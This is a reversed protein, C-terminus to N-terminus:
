IYVCWCIYWPLRLWLISRQWLLLLVRPLTFTTVHHPLPVRLLWVYHVCDFPAGNDRFGLMSYHDCNFPAGPATIGYATWPLCPYASAGMWLNIHRLEYSHWRLYIYAPQYAATWIFTLVSIYIHLNIHWLKYSHWRLYIDMCIYSTSCLWIYVSRLWWSNYICQLACDYVYPICHDHIINVSNMSSCICQENHIM